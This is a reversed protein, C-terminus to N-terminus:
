LHITTGLQAHKFRIGKKKCLICNSCKKQEQVGQMQNVM